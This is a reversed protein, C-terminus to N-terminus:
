VTTIAALVISRAFIQLYDTNLSLSGNLDREFLFNVYAEVSYSGWVVGGNPDRELLSVVLLLGLPALLVVGILAASPAILLLRGNRM